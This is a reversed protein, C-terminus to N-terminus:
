DDAHDDTDFLKAGHFGRLSHPPYKDFNSMDQQRAFRQTLRSTFFLLSGITGVVLAAIAWRFSLWYGFPALVFAVGLLMLGAIERLNM